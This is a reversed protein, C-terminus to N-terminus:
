LLYVSIDNFEGNSLTEPTCADVYEYMPSNWLLAVRVLVNDKTAINM